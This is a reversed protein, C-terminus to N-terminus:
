KSRDKKTKRVCDLFSRLIENVKSQLTIDENVAVQKLEKWIPIEVKVQKYKAEKKEMTIIYCLKTSKDVVM